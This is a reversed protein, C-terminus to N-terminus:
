GKALFHPNLDRGPQLRGSYFSFALWCDRCEFHRRWRGDPLHELLPADCRPCLAVDVPIRDGAAPVADFQLLALLERSIAETEKKM